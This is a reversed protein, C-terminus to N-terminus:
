RWSEAAQAQQRDEEFAANRCRSSCWHRRLSDDPYTVPAVSISAGCRDCDGEEGTCTGRCDHCHYTTALRQVRGNEFWPREWAHPRGFLCRERHGGCCTVTGSGRTPKEVNRLPIDGRDNASADKPTKQNRQQSPTM